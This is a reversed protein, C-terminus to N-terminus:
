AAEPLAPEGPRSAPARQTTPTLWPRSPGLEYPRGDPRYVHVEGTTHDFELTWRGEHVRAHHYRCLCLLNDIDTLGGDLWSQLHHADTWSSPATCGPWRCGRDRAHLAKRLWGPVLRKSRGLELPLGTGPDLVVRWVQCDCALRQALAPPIEGVWDLWAPERDPPVGREALPDRAPEHGPEPPPEVPPQSAPGAHEITQGPGTANLKRLFAARRDPPASMLTAPTVLVGLQPRQGAVTPLWDRTLGLRCLEVLADARRQPATRTDELGPPTMLADLATLVAAGGELDLQGRLYVWRGSRGITLSRREFDQGADPDTGDPDVYARVREWVRGLEGPSLQAAAQALAQDVERVAPVGVQEALEVVRALHEGSAAGAEAVLALAPLERLLRGTHLTRTAAGQSLRGFATLWGRTSRFGDAEALGRADFAASLSAAVAQLRNLGSVVALLDSRLSSDPLDSVDRGVLVDLVAHLDDSSGVDMEEAKHPRQDASNLESRNYRYANARRPRKVPVRVHEARPNPNSLGVSGSAVCTRTQVANLRM